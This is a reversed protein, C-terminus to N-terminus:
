GWEEAAVRAAYRANTTRLASESEVGRARAWTVLNFLVDGLIQPTLAEDAPLDTMVHFNHSTYMSPLPPADTTGKSRRARRGEASVPHPALLAATITVGSRSVGPVPALAQALGGIVGLLPKLLNHLVEILFAM